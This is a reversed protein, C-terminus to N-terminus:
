AAGPLHPQDTCVPCQHPDHSIHAQHLHSCNELLVVLELGPREGELPMM